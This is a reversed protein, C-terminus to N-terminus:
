ARGLEQLAERALDDYSKSRVNEARALGSKPSPTTGMIGQKTRSQLQKATEEKAKEQALKLLDDHRLDRFAARFSNIGNDVAHKYVRQELSFGEGDPTDFDLGPYQKRISEVEQSLAQDEKERQEISIKQEFQTKFQELADLKDLFAKPIQGGNDAAAQSARQEYAQMVHSWWQPNKQAYENIQQYPEYKSVVEKIERQHQAQKRNFEAMRQAYDYGQSAWQAARQKDAKIQKGNAVFEIWDATAQAQQATQQPTTQPAPAASTTQQGETPAQTLNNTEQGSEIQNLIADADVGATNGTPVDSTLHNENM